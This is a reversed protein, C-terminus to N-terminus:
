PDEILERIDLGSELFFGGDAVTKEGDPLTVRQEWFDDLGRNIRLMIANMASELEKQKGEFDEKGAKASGKALWEDTEELKKELREKDRKMIKAEDIDELAKRTRQMYVRLNEKAVM